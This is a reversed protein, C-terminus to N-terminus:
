ERVKAYPGAEAGTIRNAQRTGSIIQGFGTSINFTGKNYQSEVRGLQSISAPM